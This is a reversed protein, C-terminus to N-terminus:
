MSIVVLKPPEWSGSDGCVTARSWAIVQPVSEPVLESSDMLKPEPVQWALPLEACNGVPGTRSSAGVSGDAWIVLEIFVQTSLEEGGSCSLQM